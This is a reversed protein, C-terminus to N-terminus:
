RAVLARREDLLDSLTRELPIEPEWGAALRLREASGYILPVEDPRLRAPDTEAQVPLSSASALQEILDGIETAKGTCVNFTGTLGEEVMRVYARAVDRVDTFDRAVSLNGAAIRAEAAGAAEAEAIQSAFSPAAFTQGQGPGLPNFARAVCIRLGAAAHRECVEEMRAKSEGYPNLPACPHHEEAPLQAPNGYVEGSSVCLVHVTPAVREVASLLNETGGANVSMAQEPDAWSRSVSSAGGLNVVADPRAAALALEISAPDLLDCRHEGEGERRSTREVRLGAAEAATRLHRGVFGTAGIVLVTTM